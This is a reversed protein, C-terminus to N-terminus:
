LYRRSRLWSIVIKLMFIAFVASMPGPYRLTLALLCVIVLVFLDM